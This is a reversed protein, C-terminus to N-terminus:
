QLGNNNSSLNQIDRKMLTILADIMDTKGDGDSVSEIIYITDKIKTEYPKETELRIM